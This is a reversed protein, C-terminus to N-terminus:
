SGGLKRQSLVKILRKYPGNNVKEQDWTGKAHCAAASTCKGGCSVCTGSHDFSCRTPGACAADVFLMAKCPNDKGGRRDGTGAGGGAGGGRKRKKGASGGGGGGGDTPQHSLTHEGSGGCARCSVPNRGHLLEERMFSDTRFKDPWLGEGMCPAYEEWFALVFDLKEQRTGNTSDWISSWIALLDALSARPFEEEPMASMMAFLKNFASLGSWVAHDTASSRALVDEAGGKLTVSAEGGLSVTRNMSAIKGDRTLKAKHARSLKLVAMAGPFESAKLAAWMDALVKPYGTKAKPLTPAGPGEAGAAAAASAAMQIAVAACQQLQLPTLLGGPAPAQRFTTSSVAPPVQQPPTSRLDSVQARLAALDSMLQAVDAQGPADDSKHELPRPLDTGAAMALAHDRTFIFGGTESGQVVLKYFAYFQALYPPTSFPVKASICKVIIGEKEASGSRIDSMDVDHVAALLRLTAVSVYKTLTTRYAEQAEAPWAVDSMWPVESFAAKMTSTLHTERAGDPGAWKISTLAGGFGLPSAEYEAKTKHPVGFFAWQTYALM